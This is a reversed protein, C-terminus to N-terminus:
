PGSGELRSGALSPGVLFDQTLLGLGPHRMVLRVAEPREGAPVAQVWTGQMLFRAEADEVGEILVQETSPTDPGADLYPRSRRVLSGDRVLYSARQLTPRPRADGPNDWGARTVAFLFTGEEDRGPAATGQFAPATEIGGRVHAAERVPREALQALDARILARARELRTTQDVSLSLQEQGSVALTLVGVSAASVVAFVGMAVLLEVLTLGSQRHRRM